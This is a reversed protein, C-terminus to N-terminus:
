IQRRWTRGFFSSSTVGGSAKIAPSLVIAFTCSIWLNHSVSDKFMMAVSLTQSGQWYLVYHPSYPSFLFPSFCFHHCSHDYCKWPLRVQQALECDANLSLIAQTRKALDQRM